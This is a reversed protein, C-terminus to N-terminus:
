EAIERWVSQQIKIDNKHTIVGGPVHTCLLPAIGIM